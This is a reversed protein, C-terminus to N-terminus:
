EEVYVRAKKIEVRRYPNKSRMEQKVYNYYSTKNEGM